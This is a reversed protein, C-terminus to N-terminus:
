SYDLFFNTINRIQSAKINKSVINKVEECVLSFFISWVILFSGVCISGDSRQGDKIAPQRRGSVKEKVNFWPISFHSHCLNATLATSNIFWNKMWINCLFQQIHNLFVHRLHQEEWCGPIIQVEAQLLHWPKEYFNIFTVIDITLITIIIVNNVNFM